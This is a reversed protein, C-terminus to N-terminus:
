IGTAHLFCTMRSPIRSNTVQHWCALLSNRMEGDRGSPVSKFRIRFFMKVTTCEEVEFCLWNQKKSETPASFSSLIVASILISIVLM